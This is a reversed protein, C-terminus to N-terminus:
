FAWRRVLGGGLLRTLCFVRGLRRWVVWRPLANSWTKASCSLSRLDRNPVFWGVDTNVFHTMVLGRESLCVGMITKPV